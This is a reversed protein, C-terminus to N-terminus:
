QYSASMEEVGYAIDVTDYKEMLTGLSKCLLGWLCFRFYFTAFGYVHWAELIPGRVIRFVLLHCQVYSIRLGREREAGLM